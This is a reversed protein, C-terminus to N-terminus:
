TEISLVEAFKKMAAVTLKAEDSMMVQISGQTYGTADALEKYSWGRLTLQKKMEAKFELKSL